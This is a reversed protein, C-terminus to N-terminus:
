VLPLPPHLESLIEAMRKASESPAIKPLVLYSAAIPLILGPTAIEIFRNEFLERSVSSRPLFSVGLGEEIFKKTIDVESVVMTRISLGRQRLSLLLEDWYGPHNYTLLRKSQLEEEWDPIPGEMDGGNLPVALVVPDETILYTDLQFEGPILRSLGIDAKGNQVMPGIDESEAIRISVDVEPYKRTFRHILHPLSTRAIIPSVALQLCEHYGQRWAQLDEMGKQWEEILAKAQPLYRRGAPTLKVRKGVREFLKIGLEKELTRIHQTVTPQAIFLMEATQHFNEVTAAVIFTQLFKLDM